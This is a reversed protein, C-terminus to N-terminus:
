DLKELKLDDVYITGEVAQDQPRKEVTLSFSINQGEPIVFEASTEQWKGKNKMDYFKVEVNKLWKGDQWLECKFATSQKGLQEALMWGSFRYKKGPEVGVKDSKAFSWHGAKATGSIKLSASGSHSKDTAQGIKVQGQPKWGQSGDEFNFQLSQQAAASPATSTTEAKPAETTTPQEKKCGTIGAAMAAAFVYVLMKKM